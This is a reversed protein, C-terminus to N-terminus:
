RRPAHLLAVPLGALLSALQPAPQADHLVNRYRALGNLVLRTSQWHQKEILPLQGAYAAGRLSAVVILSAGDLHREFAIAHRALPGAIRLARYGGQAFLRPELARFGLVSRILHQKVAGDRWTQLLQPLPQRSKLKRRRAAFDVPRRNDPDVLSFDWLETGQYLDAIGPSALRLLTQSLSNLAGAPAITQVFRELDEVFRGDALINRLFQRCAQEYAPNIEWWDSHRKAERLAKEQWAALRSQLGAGPKDYPWAGVLMQYLQYEDAGDPAGPASRHGANMGQWRRCARAWQEPMESLVALRARLDEGRKHDHTATALLGSPALGARRLNRRHFEAISLGFCGPESGVDNLALLRGYRYFATDESSKAALAPTLQSFRRRLRRHRPLPSRLCRAIWVLLPQLEQAAAEQAGHLAQDLPEHGGGAYLRYVTFHPLLECLATRIRSARYPHAPTESRNLRAFQHALATIEANFNRSAMLRRARRLEEAYDRRSHSWQSWLATLAAQGRPQVQLATVEAMFDYGTSGDVCWGQPLTEQRSLIKEVVIWARGPRLRQLRRRLRLCYAQPDALGDVHDIRLGDILGEAYLEFIKGHVAEFVAPKEVCLGVLSTVEFFRRWNIREAADRWHALRYHQQELIEALPGRTHADRLPLRHEYYHLLEGRRRLHGQALAEELSSGLIPLLLRGHLAREPPKWDIDFHGAYVSARGHQLVDRWWPNASDAAMHNPVIDVVAGMDRRRLAKVLSRLGTEGGLEPNVRAYDLTDYGHMSGPRASFIPSLYLHSVGLQSVYDLQSEADAFTFGKHLQLRLTARIM